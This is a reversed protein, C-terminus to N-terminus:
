PPPTDLGPEDGAPPRPPPTPAPITAQAVQQLPRWWFAYAAVATAVSVVGTVILVLAAGWVWRASGSEGSM